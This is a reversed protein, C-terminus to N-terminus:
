VYPRDKVIFAALAIAPIMLAILGESSVIPVVHAVDMADYGGTLQRMFEASDTAAHGCVVGLIGSFISFFVIFLIVVLIPKFWKYTTFRRGYTAYEHENTKM